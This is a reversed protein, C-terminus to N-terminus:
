RQAKKSKKYKKSMQMEIYEDELDKIRGTQFLTRGAQKYPLGGEKIINGKPDKIDKFGLKRGLAEGGKYIKHPIYGVKGMGRAMKGTLRPSQLGYMGFLWPNVAGAGYAIPVGSLRAIGRPTIPNLAQGALMNFIEGSEDLVRLQKERHGMGANVNDRMASQLKRLTQDTTVNKGLSLEKILGEELKLAEQFDDMAQAYEPVQERIKESIQKYLSSRMRHAFKFKRPDIDIDYLTRKLTDFGAADHISPDKAFEEISEQLARIKTKEAKNRVTNFKGYTMNAMGERLRGVTESLDIKNNMGTWKEKNARYHEMRQNALRKIQVIAKQVAVEPEVKGRMSKAVTDGGELGERFAAKLPTSGSGSLVGGVVHSTLEGVGKATGAVGKGAMSLPDLNSAHKAVFKGAKTLGPVKAALSGGGTFLMSADGLFGVPDSAITRKINEVTGYREGLFKGVNRALGENGQEGPIALQVVGKGLEYLSKATNIPDSVATYIDEGYQKASPGLNTIAGGIVEGASMPIGSRSELEALRQEKRLIELEERETM